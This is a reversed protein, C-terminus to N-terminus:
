KKSLDLVQRMMRGANLALSILPEKAKWSEEVHNNRLGTGLMHPPDSM